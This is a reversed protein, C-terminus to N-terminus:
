RTRRRASIIRAVTEEDVEEVLFIVTLSRGFDSAGQLIWRLEGKLRSSTFQKDRVVEFCTAAEEFDVGHKELNSLNKHEDWTFGDLVLSDPGEWAM